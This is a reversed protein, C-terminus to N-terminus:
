LMFYFRFMLFYKINMSKKNESLSNEIEDVAVFAFEYLPAKNVSYHRNVSHQTNNNGRFFIFYHGGCLDAAECVPSSGEQPFHISIQLQCM